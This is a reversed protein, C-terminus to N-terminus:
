CPPREDKAQRQMREVDGADLKMADLDLGTIRAGCNPCFFEDAFACRRAKEECLCRGPIM